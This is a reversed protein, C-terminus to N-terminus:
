KGELGNIIFEACGINNSRNSNEFIIRLYRADVLDEVEVSKHRIQSNNPFLLAGFTEWTINDESTKITVDAMDSYGSRQWLDIMFLKNVKQMDIDIVYPMDYFPDWSSHYFSNFDNDFMKNAEYGGAVSNVSLITWSSRDITKYPFKATVSQPAQFVDISTPEPKFKTVYTFEGGQVFDGLLTENEGKPVSHNVVEGDKNTYTMEVGESGEMVRWHIHVTDNEITISQVKQNQLETVYKEGYVKISKITKLSKLGSGDSNFLEFIYRGEQLEIITECTDEETKVLENELQISEKGNNWSINCYKAKPDSNLLWTIKVRNKGTFVKVSDNKGIYINEGDALYKEHLYNQDECSYITVLAVIILIIKKM